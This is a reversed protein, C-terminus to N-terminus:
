THSATSSRNRVIYPYAYSYMAIGGKSGLMGYLISAILTLVMSSLHVYVPQMYWIIFNQMPYGYFRAKNLPRFKHRGLSSKFSRDSVKQRDVVLAKRIRM